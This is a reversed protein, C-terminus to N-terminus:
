PVAAVGIGYKKVGRWVCHPLQIMDASNVGADGDFGSTRVVHLIFVFM